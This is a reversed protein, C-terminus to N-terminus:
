ARSWTSVPDIAVQRARYRNEMYVLHAMVEFLAFRQQFSSLRNGWLFGAIQFPSRPGNHLAELIRGCRADHHAATERVRSLLGPFPDGHSPLVSDVPLNEVRRLSNLYDALPDAGPMWAINPTITPLVHDGSILLRRDSALLCLHGPSHGPTWVTELPGIATYLLEGGELTEAHGLKQFSRRVGTFAHTIADVQDAPVGWARLQHDLSHPNEVLHAITDLHALEVRHILVRARSLELVRPALGVHDPHGHTIFLVRIQNWAIGLRRLSAELVHFCDESHIGCDILLYGDDLRVLHVNVHNLEFSFPLRIRWLGPCIEAVSDQM